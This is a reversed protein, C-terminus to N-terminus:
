VAAKGSSSLSTSCLESRQVRLESVCLAFDDPLSDSDLLFTDAVSFCASDTAALFQLGQFSSALIGFGPFTGSYRVPDWYVVDAKMEQLLFSVAPVRWVESSAHQSLLVHAGAAFCAHALQVMREFLTSAFDNSLLLIHVLAVQGSHCVRLLTFFFDDHRLDRNPFIDHSVSFTDCGAGLFAASFPRRAGGNIDLAFGSCAEPVSFPFNQPDDCITQAEALDREPLSAVGVPADAPLADPVLGEM